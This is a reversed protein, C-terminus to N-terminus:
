GSSLTYDGDGVEHHALRHDSASPRQTPLPGGVHNSVKARQCMFELHQLGAELSFLFDFTLPGDEGRM